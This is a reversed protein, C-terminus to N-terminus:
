DTTLSSLQVTMRARVGEMTDHEVWLYYGPALYGHDVLESFRVDSPKRPRPQKPVPAVETAESDGDEENIHSAEENTDMAQYDANGEQEGDAREEAGAERAPNESLQLLTLMGSDPLCAIIISYDTGSPQQEEITTAREGALFPLLTLRGSGPLFQVVCSNGVAQRTGNAQKM